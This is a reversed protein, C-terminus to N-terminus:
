NRSAHVADGFRRADPALALCRAVVDVLTHHRRERGVHASRPLHAHHGDGARRPAALDDAAVGRERLVAWATDEAMTQRELFIQRLQREAFM